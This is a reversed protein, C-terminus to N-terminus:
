TLQITKKLLQCSKTKIKRLNKMHYKKIMHENCMCHTTSKRFDWEKTLKKKIDVYNDERTM